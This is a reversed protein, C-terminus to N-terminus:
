EWNSKMWDPDETRKPATVTSSESGVSPLTVGTNNFSSEPEPWPPLESTDVTDIIGDATAEFLNPGFGDPATNESEVRSEQEVETEHAKMAIETVDPQVSEYKPTLPKEPTKDVSVKRFVENGNMVAGSVTTNKPKLFCCHKYELTAEGKVVLELMHETLGLQECLLEIKSM